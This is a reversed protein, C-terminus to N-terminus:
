WMMSAGLPSAPMAMTFFPGGGVEHEHVHAHAAHAADLGQLVHAPHVGPLQDDEHGGKARRLGGDLRHLVAREVVHHLWEVGRLDERQGLIRELGVGIEPRNAVVLGRDVDVVVALADHATRGRHLFDELGDALDGGAVHGHHDGALAAGALFEDGPGDPLVAVARALREDRDVAGRNGVIQDLAFKEPVLLSGEGARAPWRSPFNSSHSPPVIKRSSIPSM